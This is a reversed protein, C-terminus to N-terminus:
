ARLREVEASQEQLLRVGGNGCGALSVPCDEFVETDLRLRSSVQRLVCPERRQGDLGATFPYCSVSVVGAKRTQTPSLGQLFERAGAGHTFVLIWNGQSPVQSVVAANAASLTDDLWDYIRAYALRSAGAECHAGAGEADLFASNVSSRSDAPIATGAHGRTAAYLARMHQREAAARRSEVGSM